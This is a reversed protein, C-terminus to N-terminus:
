WPMVKERNGPFGGEEPMRGAGYIGSGIGLLASGLGWGVWVPTMTKQVGDLLGARGAYGSWGGATGLLDKISAMKAGPFEKWMKLVAAWQEKSSQWLGVNPKLLPNVRGLLDNTWRNNYWDSQSRWPTAGPRAVGRFLDALETGEGTARGPGTLGRQVARGFRGMNGLLGSALDLGKGALALAAGLGFTAVGVIALMLDALGEKGNAYLISTSVLSAVAVGVAALVLAAVGPFVICLVALFIGIATLVKGIISLVALFKDKLTDSLGDDYRKANVADGLRRGAVDLADLASMIRRRAAEVQQQGADAAAEKQTDKAQEAEPLAGDEGAVGEPMGAAKSLGEKGAALEQEAKVAESLASSLEPLYREIERAADEYRVAAKELKDKAHGAEGRLAEISEGNMADAGRSVILDLRAVADALTSAIERYRKAAVGLLEPEAKKMHKLRDWYAGDVLEELPGLTGGHMVRDWSM